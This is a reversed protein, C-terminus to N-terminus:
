KVGENKKIWELCESLIYRPYGKKLVPMGQKEYEYITRKTKKIHDALQQRTIYEEMKAGGEM